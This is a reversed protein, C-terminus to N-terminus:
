RKNYLITITIGINKKMIRVFLIISFFQEFIIVPAQSQNINSTPKVNSGLPKAPVSQSAPKSTTQANVQPKGRNVPAANIRSGGHSYTTEDKKM